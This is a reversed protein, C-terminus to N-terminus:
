ATGDCCDKRDFEVFIAVIDISDDSKTLGFESIGSPYLDTFIKWNVPDDVMEVDNGHKRRSTPNRCGLMRILVYAGFRDHVIVARESMQQLVIRLAKGDPLKPSVDSMRTEIVVM